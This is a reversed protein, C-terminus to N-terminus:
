KAKRIRQLVIKQHEEPITMNREWIVDNPKLKKSPSLQKVITALQKFNLNIKLEINEM